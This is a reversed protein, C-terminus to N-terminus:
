AKRQLRGIAVLVQQRHKASKMWLPLRSIMTSNGAGPGRERLDAGVFDELLQLHRRNLAWLVHARWRTRLWLPQRFFPDVPLGWVSGRERSPWVASYACGPCTLRRSGELSRRAESDQAAVIAHGSCRPCVVDIDDAALDYLWVASGHFRRKDVALLRDSGAMGRM